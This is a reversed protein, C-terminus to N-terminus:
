ETPAVSAFAFAERRNVSLSPWRLHVIRCSCSRPSIKYFNIARVLRVWSYSLLLLKDDGDRHLHLPSRGAKPSLGAHGPRRLNGGDILQLDDACVDLGNIPIPLRCARLPAPSGGRLRHDGTTGPGASSVVAKRRITSNAVAGGFIDFAIVAAVAYQLSTWELKTTAAYWCTTAAGFLGAVLALGVEWGTAGPGFIIDVLGIPGRRPRLQHETQM